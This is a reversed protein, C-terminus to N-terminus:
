LDGTTEFELLAPCSWCTGEFAFTVTGEWENASTYEGIITFTELCGSQSCSCSVEFVGDSATDGVMDCCVEDLTDVTLQNGDDAFVLWTLHTNPGNMICNTQPEPNQSSTGNTVLNGCDDESLPVLPCDDSVDPIGDNDDDNDMCDAIDDTDTDPFDEDVDDDCDNDVGDCVEPNAGAFPDCNTPVGGTCNTM